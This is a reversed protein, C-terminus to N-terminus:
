RKKNLETMLATFILNSTAAVESAATTGMQRLSLVGNFAALIARAADEM